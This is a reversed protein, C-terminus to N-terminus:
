LRLFNTSQAAESASHCEFTLTHNSCAQIARHRHLTVAQPVMGPTKSPTAHHKLPPLLTASAINTVWLWRRDGCVGVCM